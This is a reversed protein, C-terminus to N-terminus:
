PITVATSPHLTWSWPPVTSAQRIVLTVKYSGAVTPKLFTLAVPSGTVTTGGTASGLVGFSWPSGASVLRATFPLGTPVGSIAVMGSCTSLSCTLDTVSVTPIAVAITTTAGELSATYAASPADTTGVDVHLTSNAAETSRYKATFTGSSITTVPGAFSRQVTTSVAPVEVMTYAKVPANTTPAPTISVAVTRDVATTIIPLSVTEGVLVRVTRVVPLDDVSTVALYDGVPLNVFSFTGTASTAQSQPASADSRYLAVQTGAIMGSPGVVTGVLSGVGGGGSTGGVDPTASGSLSTSQWQLDIAARAGQYRNDAAPDFSIAITIARTQGVAWDRVLSGNRYNWVPANVVGGDIRDGTTATAVIDTSQSETGSALAFSGGPSGAANRTLPVGFIPGFGGCGYIAMGDTQAEVIAGSARGLICVAHGDGTLYFATVRLVDTLRGRGCIDSGDVIYGNSVDCTAPANNLLTLKPVSLTVSGANLTGINGITLSNVLLMGPALGGNGTVAFGPDTPLPSLEVGGIASPAFVLTGSAATVSMTRTAVGAADGSVSFLAQGSRSNSLRLTGAQFSSQPSVVQTTFLAATTREHVLAGLGVTLLALLLVRIGRLGVM